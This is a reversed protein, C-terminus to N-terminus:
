YFFNPDICNAKNWINIKDIKLSILFFLLLLLFLGM